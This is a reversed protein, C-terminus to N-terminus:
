LWSCLFTADSQLLHVPLSYINGNRLIYILILMVPRIFNVVWHNSVVCKLLCSEPFNDFDEFSEMEEVHNRLLEFMAFRLARVNMPFREKTLM